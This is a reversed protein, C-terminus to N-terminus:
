SQGIAPEAAQADFISHRIVRRKGPRAIIAESITIDQPKNKLANNSRADCLVQNATFAKGNVGAQDLGIGIAARETLPLLHLLSMSGSVALRAVRSYRAVRSSAAKPVAVFTVGFNTEGASGAACHVPALRSLAM